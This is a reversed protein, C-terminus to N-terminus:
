RVYLGRRLKARAIKAAMSDDKNTALIDRLEAETITPSPTEEHRFARARAADLAEALSYAGSKKSHSELKLLRSKISMKQSWFKLGNLYM